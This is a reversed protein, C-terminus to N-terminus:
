MVLLTVLVSICSIGATLPLGLNCFAVIVAVIFGILSPLFFDTANLIAPFTLTALTIYPAYFLFSRFFKNRITKKLFLLPIARILYTVAAIVLISICIYRDSM